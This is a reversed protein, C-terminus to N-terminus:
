FGDTKWGGIETGSRGGGDEPRGDKGDGTEQRGTEPRRDGKKIRGVVVILFAQGGKGKYSVM